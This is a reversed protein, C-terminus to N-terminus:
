RYNSFDNRKDGCITYVRDSPLQKAFNKLNQTIRVKNEKRM